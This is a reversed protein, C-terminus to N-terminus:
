RIYVGDVTCHHAEFPGDPLFPSGIGLVHVGQQLFQVLDGFDDLSTLLSGRHSTARCDGGGARAPLFRARGRERSDCIVSFRGEGAGVAPLGM